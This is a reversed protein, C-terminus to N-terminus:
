RHPAVPTPKSAFVFRPNKRWLREDPDRARVAREPWRMAKVAAVRAGPLLPFTVISVEWLDIHHLKRVKTKPDVRAKVTRFGISLGDIAGSKLLAHVERARQVDPILRGRAYLGRWDEKLELWIGIPEAPDHQFLMPIRRLGRVALTDRFAGPVVMDRSLDIAGFLSAYGEVTGDGDILTPVLSTPAHM